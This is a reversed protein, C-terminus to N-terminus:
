FLNTSFIEFNFFAIILSTSFLTKNVKPIVSIYNKLKTAVVKVYGNWFLAKEILLNKISQEPVDFGSM